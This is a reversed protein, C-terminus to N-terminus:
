RRRRGRSTAPGKNRRERRPGSSRGPTRPRHESLEFDIRSDDVDVAAVQVRLRDGLRFVEGSREAELRHGIPDFDYYDRPLNTVHVLGEIHLGALDVFLGFPAVGSVIGDFHEGVHALMFECKLHTAADRTAEEARRETFSCHVAAEEAVGPASAAGEKDLIRKIARHVELDPYRRIPSTFHTYMELALGFHGTCTPQYLARTLSRLLVTHILFTEDRDRSKDILAAYDSPRPNAGGGLRLGFEHLFQQLDTLRDPSPPAHNRYMGGRKHRSLLRAACVNAAVMCEEILRHADNRPRPVVAAIKGNADFEFGVENSDFDLAGREIRASLLVRYVDALRALPERLAVPADRLGNGGGRRKEFLWEAVQTYTLRAHSRIVARAFRSRTVSGDAAVSMDCVMVLRDQEPNLSCLGNSLQEPLMPVVRGPFYVSTGRGYAESDLASGERVYHSVDAIAVLLRWGDGRAQCLVADDFDKADEGDITVFPLDRLDRRGALAAPPVTDPVRRTENLVARPWEYPIGHSRLAIEVEMGPAGREGLVEVVAGIPQNHSSPQETIRAVVVQHERAERLQKPPILIDQSIRRDEPIVYAFEGERHLRGVVTENAREIVEVLRGEPRGRRDAGTVRVVARDGHLAQRMERPALYIDDGGEDPVLFGFGDRHGAIRGRCLGHEDVPLFGGRRNQVLQGARLMAALRKDLAERQADSRAGAQGALEDFTLPGPHARVLALLHERSAVPDAYRRAEREAFPDARRGARGRATKTKKKPAGAM